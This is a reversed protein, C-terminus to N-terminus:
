FKKKEQPYNVKSSIPVIRESEIYNGNLQFM